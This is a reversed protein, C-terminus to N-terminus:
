RLKAWNEILYVLTHFFVLLLLLIIFDVAIGHFSVPCKEESKNQRIVKMRQLHHQAFSTSESHKVSIFVKFLQICSKQFTM